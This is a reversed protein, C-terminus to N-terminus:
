AQNILAIITPIVEPFEDSQLRLERVIDNRQSKEHDSLTYIDKPIQKAEFRIRSIDYKDKNKLYYEKCYQRLHERNNIYYTKTYESM